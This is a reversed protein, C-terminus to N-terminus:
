INPVSEVGRAVLQAMDRVAGGQSYYLILIETM